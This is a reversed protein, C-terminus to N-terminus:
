GPSGQGNFVLLLRWSRPVRSCVHFPGCGTECFFSNTERTNKRITRPHGKSLFPHMIPFFCFRQCIAYNKGCCRRQTPGQQCAIGSHQTTGTMRFWATLIHLDLHAPLAADGDSVNLHGIKSHKGLMSILM